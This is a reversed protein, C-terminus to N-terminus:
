TVVDVIVENEYENYDGVIVAHVSDGELQPLIGLDSGEDGLVVMHREGEPGVSDGIGLLNVREPGDAGATVPSGQLPFHSGQITTAMEQQSLLESHSKIQKYGILSDERDLFITNGSYSSHDLDISSCTTNYKVSSSDIVPCEDIDSALNSTGIEIEQGELYLPGGLHDVDTDSEVLRDSLVLDCHDLSTSTQYIDNNKSKNRMKRKSSNKSKQKKCINIRIIKDETSVKTQQNGDKTKVKVM